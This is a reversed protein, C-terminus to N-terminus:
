PATIEPKKNRPDTALKGFKQVALYVAQALWKSMGDHVCARRLEEDASDKWHSPLLGERMLQYLADHILSGRMISKMDPFCTAGDWAYGANVILLGNRDMVMFESVLVTPPIISTQVDFARALQYKYGSRYKM